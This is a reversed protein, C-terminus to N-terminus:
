GRPDSTSETADVTLAVALTVAEGLTRANATPTSEPTATGLVPVDPGILIGAAGARHAGVIDHDVRDGVHVRPGTSAGYARAFIAPDPKAAGVDDATVVDDVVADLGVARIAPLQYRRYGNTLIVVRLGRDRLSDLLSLAAPDLLRTGGPARRAVMADLDIGTSVGFRASVRGVIDAWDYANVEGRDLRTRHLELVASRVEAAAVDPGGGEAAGASILDAAEGIVAGFPGAILTGDLDFSVIM